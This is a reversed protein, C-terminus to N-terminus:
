EPKYSGVVLATVDKEDGSKALPIPLQHNPDDSVPWLWPEGKDLRLEKVTAEILGQARRLVVVRRGPSPEFGLDFFLVCIIITGEPYVLNMSSGRVELAFKPLADYRVEVPVEVMYREAHAWEYAEVWEGAHVSGLVEVRVLRHTGLTTKHADCAGLLDDVSCGFANALKRLTEGRPSLSRGYMIQKVATEELGAELSTRRWSWGKKKMRRDLQRQLESWTKEDSMPYTHGVVLSILEPLNVRSTPNNYGKNTQAM